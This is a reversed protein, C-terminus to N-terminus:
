EARHVIKGGAVTMLVQGQLRGAAARIDALEIMRPNDAPIAAPFVALTPTEGCGVDEM